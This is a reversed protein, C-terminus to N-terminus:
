IDWIRGPTRLVSDQKTMFGVLTNSFFLCLCITIIPDFIRPTPVLLSSIQLRPWLIPEVCEDVRSRPAVTRKQRRARSRGVVSNDVGARRVTDVLSCEFRLEPQQLHWNHRLVFNNSMIGRYTSARRWSRQVISSIHNPVPSPAFDPKSRWKFKSSRCLTAPSHGHDGPRLFVGLIYQRRPIAGTPLIRDVM